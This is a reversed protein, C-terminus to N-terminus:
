QFAVVEVRGFLDVGRELAALERGARHEAILRQAEDAVDELRQRLEGAENAAGM